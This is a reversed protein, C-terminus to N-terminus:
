KSRLQGSGSMTFPFQNAQGTVGVIVAKTGAIETPIVVHDSFTAYDFGMAEAGVVRRAKV